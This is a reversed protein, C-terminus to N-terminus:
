IFSIGEKVEEHIWQHSSRLSFLDDRTCSSEDLFVSIINTSNVREIKDFSFASYCCFLIEDQEEANWTKKSVQSCAYRTQYPTNIAFITKNGYV